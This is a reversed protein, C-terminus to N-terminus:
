ARTYAILKLKNLDLVTLEKHSCSSLIGTQRFTQLHKNVVQRSAGIMKALADDTLNHILKVTHFGSESCDPSTHNIILRALRTLSDATALSGAFDELTRMKEVLYALLNDNFQPYLHIWNKVTKKDVSLLVLDDLAISVTDNLKKNFLSFIDFIDGEGLIFLTLNKGTAKDTYEIKVRGEAIWHLKGESLYSDVMMGADWTSCQFHEFLPSLLEDPLGSFLVSQNLKNKYSLYYSADNNM